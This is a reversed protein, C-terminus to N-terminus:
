TVGCVVISSDIAIMVSRLIRWRGTTSSSSTTPIMEIPSTTFNWDFSCLKWILYRVSYMEPPLYSRGFVLALREAAGEVRYRFSVVARTRVIGSLQEVVEDRQRAQRRAVPQELDATPRALRRAGEERAAKRHQADLQAGTEGLLGPSVQASQRDLHLDLRELRPRAARSKASTYAAVAHCQTSGASRYSLACASSRGPPCRANQPACCANGSPNSGNKM